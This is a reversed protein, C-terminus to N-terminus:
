PRCDWYGGRGQVNLTKLDFNVLYILLLFYDANGYIKVIAVITPVLNQKSFRWHLLKFMIFMIGLKFISM